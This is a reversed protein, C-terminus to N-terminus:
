QIEWTGDPQKVGTKGKYPGATFVKTELTTGSSKASSKPGAAYKTMYSDLGRLRGQFIQLTGVDSIMDKFSKMTGPSGGARGAYHVVAAGSALLGLETSFRGTLENKSLEPDTSLASTFAEVTGAKEAIRRVRGMVPGFLGAKDLQTAMDGLDAIHPELISAAEMQRRTGPTIAPGVPQRDEGIVPKATGTRKDVLLPGAPGQFVNVSPQQPQPAREFRTGKRFPGTTPVLGKDPTMKSFQRGDASVFVVDETDNTAAKPIFGSSIGRGAILNDAIVEKRFEPSEPDMTALRAASAQAEERKRFAERQAPNGALRLAVKNRVLEQPTPADKMVGALAPVGQTMGSAVYPDAFQQPPNELQDGLGVDILRQAFDTSPIDGKSRRALESEVDHLKRSQIASTRGEQLSALNAAHEERRLRLDEDERAAAREEIRIKHADLFAQRKLEAQKLLADEITQTFAGAASEAM